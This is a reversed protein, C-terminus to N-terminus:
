TFCSLRFLSCVTHNWSYSMRSFAFSYLYKFFLDTTVLLVPYPSHYVPLAWSIKLAIFSNQIISECHTYSLICKDFGMSSQTYGLIHDRIYVISNLKYVSTGQANRPGDLIKLAPQNHSPMNRLSM